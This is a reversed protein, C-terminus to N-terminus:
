EERNRSYGIDCVIRVGELHKKRKRDKCLHNEIASVGKGGELWRKIILEFTYKQLKKKERRLRREIEWPLECM